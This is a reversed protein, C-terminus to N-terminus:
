NIEQDKGIAMPHLPTAELGDEEGVLEPTAVSIKRDESAPRTPFVFFSVFCLSCGILRSGRM